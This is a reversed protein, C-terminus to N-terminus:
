PRGLPGAMERIGDVIRPGLRFLSDSIYYVRGKQVAELVNWRRLLGRVNEDARHGQGIFIIDPSRHVVEEFSYKPYRAGADSAINRAGLLKLSDDIATGPGAVILPDPQVIFLVKRVGERSSKGAWNRYQRLTKEIRKAARAARDKAGLFTGLKRLEGPLESLRAARFVYFSIGLKKLRESIEKPNGDDTMIVLDPRMAVISELSPNSFGGVRPKEEVRPPYNCYSTVAVVRQELGLDYLIETINPALSIIRAPPGGLAAAPLVLFSLILFILFVGGTGKLCGSPILGNDKRM